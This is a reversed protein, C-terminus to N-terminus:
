SFEIESDLSENVPPAFPVDIQPAPHDAPAPVAPRPPIIHPRINQPPTQREAAILRKAETSAALFNQQTIVGFVSAWVIVEQHKVLFEPAFKNALNATPQALSDRQEPTYALLKLAGDPWRLFFKVVMQYMSSIGSYLQKIQEPDFMKEKGTLGFQSLFEKDKFLDEFSKKAETSMKSWEIKGDLVTLLIRAKNKASSPAKPAVLPRPRAVASGSAPPLASAPAVPPADGAPPASGRKIKLPM